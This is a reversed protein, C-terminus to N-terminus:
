QNKFLVVIDLNSWAPNKISTRTKTDRSKSSPATGATLGDVFFNRRNWHHPIYISTSSQHVITHRTAQDLTLTVVAQLGSLLLRGDTGGPVLKNIKTDKPKSTCHRKDAKTPNSTIEETSLWSIPQSSRRLFWRKTHRTPNLILETLSLGSIKTSSMIDPTLLQTAFVTKWMFVANLSWKGVPGQDAWQGSWMKKNHIWLFKFCFM